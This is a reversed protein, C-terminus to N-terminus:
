LGLGSSSKIFPRSPDVSLSSLASPIPPRNPRAQSKSKEAYPVPAMHPPRYILDDNSLPIINDQTSAMQAVMAPQVLSM